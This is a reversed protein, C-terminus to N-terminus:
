KWGWAFMVQNIEKLDLVTIGYESMIEEKYETFHSDDSLIGKKVWSLKATSILIKLDNDGPISSKWRQTQVTKKHKQFYARANTIEKDTYNEPLQTLKRDFLKRLKERGREV